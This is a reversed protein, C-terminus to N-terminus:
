ANEVHLQAQCARVLSDVNLPKEESIQADVWEEMPFREIGLSQELAFTLDVFKLSDMGLDEILLSMRQIQAADVGPLNLNLLQKRVVELVHDFTQSSSTM